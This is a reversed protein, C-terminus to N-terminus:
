NCIEGNNPHPECYDQTNGAPWSESRSGAAAAGKEAVVNENTIGGRMASTAMFFLMVFFFAAAYSGHSPGM